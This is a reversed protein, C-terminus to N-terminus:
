CPWRRRGRFLALGQTDPSTPVKRWPWSFRGEWSPRGLLFRKYLSLKASLSSACQSNAFKITVSYLCLSPMLIWFLTDKRRTDVQYIIRPRKITVVCRKLTTIRRRRWAAQHKSVCGRSGGGGGPTIADSGGSMYFCFLESWDCRERLSTCKPATIPRRRCLLDEQLHFTTNYCDVSGLVM